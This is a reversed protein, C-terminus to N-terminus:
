KIVKESFVENFLQKATELDIKRNNAFRQLKEIIQADSLRDLDYFLARLIEKLRERKLTEFSIAKEFLEKAKFLPLKYDKAIIAIWKDVLRNMEEENDKAILQKVRDVYEEKIKEIIELEEKNMKEVTKKREEAFRSEFAEIIKAFEEFKLKMEEYEKKIKEFESRIRTMTKDNESGFFYHRLLTRILQTLNLGNKKSEEIASILDADTSADLAFSYHRFGM